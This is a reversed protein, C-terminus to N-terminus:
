ASAGDSVPDPVDAAPAALGALAVADAKLGDIDDQTIDEAAPLSTIRAALDSIATALAAEAATLEDRLESLKKELIYTRELIKVLLRYIRVLIM